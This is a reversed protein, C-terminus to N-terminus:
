KDRGGSASTGPEPTEADPESPHSSSSTDQERLQRIYDLEDQAFDEDVGSALMANLMAEAEDFKKLEILLSAIRRNTFRVIDDMDDVMEEVGSADGFDIRMKNQTNVTRQRLNQLFSMAHPDHLDVLANCFEKLQDMSQNAEGQQLYYFARDPQGAEMYIYGIHHSLDYFVRRRNENLDGWQDSLLRWAQLLFHLAQPYCRANYLHKGWYLLSEMDEDEVSLAMRQESSVEDWKGHKMKDRADDLMYKLEWFDGRDGGFRVEVQTHLSPFVDSPSTSFIALNYHFKQETNQEGLTFLLALTLLDTEILAVLRMPPVDSDRLYNRFDFRMIAKVDTMETQKQDAILTLRSPLAEPQLGYLLLIERVSLDGLGRDAEQRGYEHRLEHRAYQGQMLYLFRESVSGLESSDAGQQAKDMAHEVYRLKEIMFDMMGRIMGAVKQPEDCGSCLGYIRVYWTGSNKDCCADASVGRLEGNCKNVAEMLWMRYDGLYDETGTLALDVMSNFKPFAMRFTHQNYVCQYVGDNDVSAFTELGLAELLEADSPRHRCPSNAQQYLRLMRRRQWVVGAVACLAALLLFLFFYIANAM